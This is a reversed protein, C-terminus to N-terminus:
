QMLWFSAKAITTDSAVLYDLSQSIKYVPRSYSYLSPCLSMAMKAYERTRVTLRLLEYFLQTLIAYRSTKGEEEEEQNTVSHLL